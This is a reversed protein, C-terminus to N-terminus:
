THYSGCYAPFARAYPNLRGKRWTKDTLWIEYVNSGKNGGGQRILRLYDLERLKRISNVVGQRSLGTVQELQGLSPFAVGSEDAYRILATYVAYSALGMRVVHGDDFLENDAWWWSRKRGDKLTRTM